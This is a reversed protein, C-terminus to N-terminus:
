PLTDVGHNIDADRPRCRLFCHTELIKEDQARVVTEAQLAEALGASATAGVLGGLGGNLPNRLLKRKLSNSVFSGPVDARLRNYVQRPTQLRGM